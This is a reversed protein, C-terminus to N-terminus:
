SLLGGHGSAGRRTTVAECWRYKGWASFNDVDNSLVWSLSHVEVCAIKSHSSFQKPLLHWEDSVAWVLAQTHMQDLNMKTIVACWSVPDPELSAHERLRYLFDRVKHYWTEMLRNQGPSIHRWQARFRYPYWLPYTRALDQHYGQRRSQPYEGHSCMLSITNLYSSKIRHAAMVSQSLTAPTLAGRKVCLTQIQRPAWLARAVHRNRVAKISYLFVMVM